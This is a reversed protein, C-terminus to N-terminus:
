RMVEKGNRYRVGIEIERKRNVLEDIRRKAEATSVNVTFTAPQSAAARAAAIAAAQAEWRAADAAKARAINDRETKGLADVADTYEEANERAEDQAELQSRYRDVLQELQAGQAAEIDFVGKGAAAKAELKTRADDILDNGAMVVANVAEEDGAMARVVLARDLNLEAADAVAQAYRGETDRYIAGMEAIIDQVTGYKRGEEAASIWADTLAAKLEAAEEQQTRLEETVIGFGLAGALGLGAGVPGFGVFANAAIEQVADLGDEVSSISAATERMSQNAESKFDNVGDEARKFGKRFDNGIDDGTRSSARTLDRFSGELRETAREGDRVVDDLADAVDDLADAVDDTGKQFGRVNALVDLKIPKGV